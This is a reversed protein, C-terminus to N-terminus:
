AHNNKDSETNVITDLYVLWGFGVIYLSRQTIGAVAPFAGFLSSLLLTLALASLHVIRPARRQELLGCLLMALSITIGASTALISHLRAESQSYDVGPQFPATSFVGTLLVALGYLLIGIEPWNRRPNAVARRTAGISILAGFGIFGLCMIWAQEYGQAALASITNQTWTYPAPVLLHAIIIAALIWVVAITYFKV